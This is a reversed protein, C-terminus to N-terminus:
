EEQTRYIFHPNTKRTFIKGGIFYTESVPKKKLTFGNNKLVRSCYNIMSKHTEHKSFRVVWSEHLLACLVKVFEQFETEDPVIKSLALVYKKVMPYNIKRKPM